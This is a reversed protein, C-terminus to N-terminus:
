LTNFGACPFTTKCNFSPCNYSTDNGSTDCGFKNFCNFKNPCKFNANSQCQFNKYCNFIKYCNFSYDGVCEFESYANCTFNNAACNFNGVDNGSPYLGCKFDGPTNDWGNPEEPDNINYGGNAKNTASCTFSGGKCGFDDACIFIHGTSCEFGNTCNFDDGCFFDAVDTNGPSDCKYNSYCNFDNCMFDVRQSANNCSFNSPCDFVNGQCNFLLEHSQGDSQPCQWPMVRMRTHFASSPTASWFGSSVLSTGVTQALGKMKKRRDLVRLVREIKGLDEHSNENM